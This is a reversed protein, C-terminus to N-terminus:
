LRRMNREARWTAADPAFDATESQMRNLLQFLRLAASKPPLRNSPLPYAFNAIGNILQQIGALLCRIQDRFDSGM